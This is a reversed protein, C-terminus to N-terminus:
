FRQKFWYLKPAPSDYIQLLNNSIDVKLYKAISQLLRSFINSSFTRIPIDTAPTSHTRKATRDLL